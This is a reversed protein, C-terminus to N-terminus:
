DKPLTNALALRSYQEMRQSSIWEPAATAFELYHRTQLHTKFAAEDDYLEYLLFNPGTASECIDFRRCGGETNLSAAANAKIASRFEDLFAPKVEIAVVVAHM